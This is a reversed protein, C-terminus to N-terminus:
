MSAKVSCEGHRRRLVDQQDIAEQGIIISEILKHVHDPRFKSVRSSGM